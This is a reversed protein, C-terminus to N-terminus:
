PSAQGASEERIGKIIISELDFSLGPSQLNRVIFNGIAESLKKM